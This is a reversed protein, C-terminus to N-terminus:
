NIIANMQFMPLLMAVIMFGVIGVVAVLVAPGLVTVFTQALAQSSRECGGALKYLGKELKGSEQGVAILDVAVEPFVPSARVAQALGMGGKVKVAIKKVEEQLVANGIVFSVSELAAVVPVGSELLMGLTRAFRSLQTQEIFKRLVPVKLSVMDKWMKGQSTALFQRAWLVVAAAAAAMLWWFGAFVQSIGVVVRTPFPLVADFDEFMVTLRPLVFSLLVFITLLGVMFIIAPYLLSSKIRAQMHLDQELFEALRNLALPLQGSSEAARVTNIYLPSFVLPHRALAFSLSGGQQLSATLALAIKVMAPFQRQRSCLEMCRALPIGAELLDALQRTFQFLATRSVKVAPPLGTDPRQLVIGPQECPTVEIPMHGAAILKSIAQAFTDAQIQGNIIDQPGNKAKYSFEM